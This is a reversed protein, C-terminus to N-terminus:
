DLTSLFPWTGVWTHLVHFAGAKNAFLLSPKCPVFMKVKKGPIGLLLSFINLSKSVQDSIRIYAHISKRLRTDGRRSANADTSSAV